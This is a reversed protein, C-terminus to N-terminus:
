RRSRRRLAIGIWACLCFLVWLVATGLNRSWTPAGDFYRAVAVLVFFSLGSVLLSFPAAVGRARVEALYVSGVLLGVLIAAGTAAPTLVTEADSLM